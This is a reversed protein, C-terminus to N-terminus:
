FCKNYLPSGRDPLNSSDNFYLVFIIEDLWNISMSSAIFDVRTESGMYM